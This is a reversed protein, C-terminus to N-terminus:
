SASTVKLTSACYRNGRSVEAFISVEPRSPSCYTPSSAPPSPTISFCPSRSRSVCDATTSSFRILWNRNLLAASPLSLLSLLSPLHRRYACEPVQNKRQEQCPRRTTRRGAGVAAIRELSEIARHIREVIAEVRGNALWHRGGIAVHQGSRHAAPDAIEKGIDRIEPDARVVQQLALRGVRDGVPRAESEIRGEADEAQVIDRAVHPQLLVILIEALREPAP